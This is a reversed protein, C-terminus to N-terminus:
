KRPELFSFHHGAHALQLRLATERDLQGFLPSPLYEGSHHKFKQIAKELERVGVEDPETGKSVSEPLTPLKAKMGEESLIKKLQSKGMTARMIGLLMRVFWPQKPFGDVPYTLWCALHHCVQGLGWDGKRTYGGKELRRALSVVEELSSFKLSEPKSEGM